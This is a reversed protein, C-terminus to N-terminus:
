NIYLKKVRATWCTLMDYPITQALDALDRATVGEGMVTVRSTINAAPINKLDVAAIDMSIRGLIDCRAGDIMVYGKSCFRPYGDGYGLEILAIKTQAAATFSNGYGIHEGKEVTKIQMVKSEVSMVRQLGKVTSVSHPYGYLALGTRVMDMLYKGGRLAAASSASHLLTCAGMNNRVGDIMSVFADYQTDTSACSEDDACAYHTYVGCLKIHKLKSISEYAGLFAKATKIGLRNMGTDLKIHAKVRKGLREAYREIREAESISYLTLTIDNIILEDILACEVVGLLLIPETIGDARLKLAEESRAVGFYDAYGNLARACETMGHGYADAKIMACLKATGINDKIIAANSKLAGLDM